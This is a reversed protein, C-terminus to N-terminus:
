TKKSARGVAKEMRWMKLTIGGTQAGRLNVDLTSVVAWSCQEYFARAPDNGVVVTLWAHSFSNQKIRNGADILLKQGLGLGQCHNAVFLQAVEDNEIICLGAPQDQYSAIRPRDQSESLREKFRDLSRENPPHPPVLHDHTEHWGDHWLKATAKMDGLKLPSITTNNM